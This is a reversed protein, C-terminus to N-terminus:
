HQSEALLAQLRIAEELMKVPDGQNNEGIAKKIRDIWFEKPQLHIVPKAPDLCSQARWLDFVPGEFVLYIEDWRGAEGPGYWHELGPYVLIADGPGVELRLGTEDEYAGGGDLVYVLTFHPLIRTPTLVGVSDKLHCAIRIGGLPSIALNQVFFTHQTRRSDMIM